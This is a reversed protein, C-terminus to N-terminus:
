RGDLASREALPLRPRVMVGSWTNSSAIIVVQLASFLVNDFSQGPQQNDGQVCIQGSPCIYGKPAESSIGGIGDLTLFGQNTGTLPDFWGGCLQETSFPATTPDALRSGDSTLGLCPSITLVSRRTHRITCSM